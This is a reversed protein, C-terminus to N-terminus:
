PCRKGAVWRDFAAIDLLIRGGVRFVVGAALIGNGPVLHGRSNIRHEGSAILRRLVAQTFVGSYRDMEALQKITAFQPSQKQANANM